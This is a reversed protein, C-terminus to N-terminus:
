KEAEQAGEEPQSKIRRNRKRGEGSKGKASQLAHEMETSRDVLSEAPASSLLLISFTGSVLISGTEKGIIRLAGTDTGGTPFIGAARM